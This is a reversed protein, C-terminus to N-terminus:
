RGLGALLGWSRLPEGRLHQSIQERFLQRLERLLAAEPEIRHKIALLAAGSYGRSDSVRVFGHEQEFRYRAQPDIAVGEADEAFDAAYGLEALLDHEFQRLPWAIAAADVLTRLVSAYHPYLSPYADGRPLLRVMLENCYLGALSRESRLEMAAGLPEARILRQLEGAGMFDLQLQQFPQLLAPLASKSGRAGRAILGIRGHDRSFVELLLSSESYQRRHLVFGPQDIIRM